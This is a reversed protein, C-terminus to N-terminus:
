RRDSIEVWLGMLLFITILVGIVILTIVPWVFLLALIWMAIVLTIIVGM